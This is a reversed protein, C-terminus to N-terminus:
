FIGTIEVDHRGIGTGVTSLVVLRELGVNSSNYSTVV